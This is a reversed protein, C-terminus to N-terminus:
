SCMSPLNGGQIHFTILWRPNHIRHWVALSSWYSALCACLFTPVSYTIGRYSLVYTNVRHCHQVINNVVINLGKLSSHVIYAACCQQMRNEVVKFLHYYKPTYYLVRNQCVSFESLAIILQFGLCVACLVATIACKLVAFFVKYLVQVKDQREKGVKELNEGGKM